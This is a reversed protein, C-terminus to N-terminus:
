LQGNEILVVIEEIMADEGTSDYEQKLDSGFIKAISQWFTASFSGKLTSLLEYTTHGTQRDVLKLLIRGQNVTLKVLDGEFSDRLEKEKLKIFKKKAAPDKISDLQAEIADLQYKILLSYPYVKKVYYVLRGYQRRQAENKFKRPPYVIVENVFVHMVTDGDIVMGRIIYGNQIDDIRQKFGVTDKTEIKVTDRRVKQQAAAPTFYFAMLVLLISLSKMAEFNYRLNSDKTIYAFINKIVLNHVSIV